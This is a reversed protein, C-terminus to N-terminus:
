WHPHRKSNRAYARSYASEDEQATPRDQTAPRLLVRDEARRLVTQPDHLLEPWLHIAFIRKSYWTVLGGIIAGVILITFGTAEKADSFKTFM